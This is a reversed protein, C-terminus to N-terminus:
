GKAILVSENEHGTRMRLMQAYINSHVKNKKLFLNGM